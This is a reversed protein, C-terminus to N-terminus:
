HREWDNIGWVGGGGVCVCVVPESACSCLLASPWHRTSEFDRLYIFEVHPQRVSVKSLLYLPVPTQEHCRFHKAQCREGVVSPDDDTRGPLSGMWPVTENHSTMDESLLGTLGWCRSETLGIHFVGGLREVCVCVCVVGCGARSQKCM